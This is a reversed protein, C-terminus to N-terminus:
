IVWSVLKPTNKINWIKNLPDIREPSFAVLFDSTDLGSELELLPVLISRTTGTSVTSEFIVLTGKKLYKGVGTAAERVYSLDPM